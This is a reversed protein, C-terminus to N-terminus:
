KVARINPPIIVQKDTGLEVLVGLKNLMENSDLMNLVRQLEGELLAYGVRGVSTYWSQCSELSLFVPFYHTDSGSGSLLYLQPKGDKGNGAPTSYYVTTDKMENVFSQIDTEGSLLKNRMEVWSQEM